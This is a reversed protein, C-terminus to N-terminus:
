DCFCECIKDAAGQTFTFEQSDALETTFGLKLIKGDASLIGSVKVPRQYYGAGTFTNYIGNTTFKGNKGLRLKPIVLDECCLGDIRYGDKDPSLQRCGESWVGVPLMNDDSRCGSVLILIIGFIFFSVKMGSIM